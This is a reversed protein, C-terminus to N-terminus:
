PGRHGTGPAVRPAQRGSGGAGAPADVHGLGAGRGHFTGFPLNAALLYGGGAVGSLAGAVVLACLLARARGTRGRRREQPLSWIVSEPVGSM